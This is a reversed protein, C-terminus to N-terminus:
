YTAVRIRTGDAAAIRLCQSWDEYVISVIDNFAITKVTGWPLRREIGRANWRTETLFSFGFCATGMAAFTIALWGCVQMQFAADARASGVFYYIYIMIAAMGVSLVVALWDMLGPTLYHWGDVVRGKRRQVVACLFFVANVAAFILAFKLIRVV